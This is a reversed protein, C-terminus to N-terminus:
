KGKLYRKGLAISTIAALTETSPEGFYLLIAGIVVLAIIDTVNDLVKDALSAKQTTNANSTSM